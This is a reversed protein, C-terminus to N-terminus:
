PAARMIIDIMMLIVENLGDFFSVVSHSKEEPIMVLAIGFLIAFFIVQLMNSNNSMSAVINSPVMDELFQLPGEEKVKQADATKQSTLAAHQEKFENRKEESFVKGPTLVNVYLLGITVAIVTTLLYIGVAKTGIRSLKSIDSLSSIGKILSVLVLPVAILKLLNIFITGFPTIWNQTFTNWGASSAALGWAIGLAMGILIQWHLALKKKKM